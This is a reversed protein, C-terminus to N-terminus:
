LGARPLLPGTSSPERGEQRADGSRVRCAGCGEPHRGHHRPAPRNVGETGPKSGVAQGARKFVALIQQTTIEHVGFGGSRTLAVLLPEGKLEPLLAKEGAKFRLIAEEADIAAGTPMGGKHGAKSRREALVMTMAETSMGDYQVLFMARRWFYTELWNIARRMIAVTDPTVSMSYEYGGCAAEDYMHKLRTVDLEGREADAEISGDPLTIEFGERALTLAGADMVNSGGVRAWKAIAGSVDFHDKGLAGPRSCTARILALVALDSVGENGSVLGDDIRELIKDQVMFYTREDWKPKVYPHRGHLVAVPM